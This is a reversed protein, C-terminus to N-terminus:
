IFSTNQTNQTHTSSSKIDLHDYTLGYSTNKKM